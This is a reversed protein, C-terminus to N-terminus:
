RGVVHRIAEHAGRIPAPANRGFMFLGAAVFIFGLVVVGIQTAFTDIATECAGLNTIGCSGSGSTSTGSAPAPTGGPGNMVGKLVSSWSPWQFGQWGGSAPPANTGVASGTANATLPQGTLSNTLQLSSQAGTYNGGGFISPGGAADIFSV